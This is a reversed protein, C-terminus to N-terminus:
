ELYGVIKVEFSIIEGNSSYCYTVKTDIGYERMKILLDDVFLEIEM